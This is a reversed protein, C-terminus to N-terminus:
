PAPLLGIEPTVVEVASRPGKGSPGQHHAQRGQDEDSRSLWAQAERSAKEASLDNEHCSAEVVSRSHTLAAGTVAGRMFDTYTAPFTTYCVGEAVALM